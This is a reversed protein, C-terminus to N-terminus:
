AALREVPALPLVIHRPQRDSQRRLSKGSRCFYCQDHGAAMRGDCGVSACRALPYDPTNTSRRNM